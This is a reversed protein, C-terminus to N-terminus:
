MNLLALAVIIICIAGIKKASLKEKFFLVGVISILVITAVSYVPYVIIAPLKRLSLLLFRSSYYNPIGILVGFLLDWLCFKQHKRVWMVVSCLAAAIFTYLLYHDKLDPNGLKNYINAMSDTFGSCLLLTILLFKYKSTNKEGKEFHILFIATIALVIGLIQLLRPHERFVVIAMLTPILVGLKMFTASMVIGNKQINYQLLLFNALFLIGSFLGFGITLEIGSDSRFLAQKGMYIRALIACACYNAIFMGMNNEIKEEGICMITSILASSVIALWLYLM